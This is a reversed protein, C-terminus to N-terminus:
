RWQASGSGTPVTLSAGRASPRQWRRRRHLGISPRRRRLRGRDGGRLFYAMARAKVLPKYRHMLAELANADGSRARTVLDECVRESLDLKEDPSIM